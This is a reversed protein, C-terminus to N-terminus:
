MCVLPGRSESEEETSEEFAPNDLGPEEMWMSASRCVTTNTNTNTNTNTTSSSTTTTTTTTTTGPAPSPDADRLDTQPPSLPSRPPSTATTIGGDGGKCRPGDVGSTKQTQM